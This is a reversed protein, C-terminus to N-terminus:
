TRDTVHCGPLAIKRKKGHHWISDVLDLFGGAVLSRGKSEDQLLYNVLDSRNRRGSLVAVVGYVSGM